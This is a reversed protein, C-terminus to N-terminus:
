SKSTRHTISIKCKVRINFSKLPKWLQKLGSNQTCHEFYVKKGNVVAVNIYNTKYFNFTGRNSTKKYQKLTKDRLRMM